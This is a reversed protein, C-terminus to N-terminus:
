MVERLIAFIMASIGGTIPMTVVWSIVINTFLSWDVVEKSRVRGVFVVSGVKCHTTSVPIGLNSALLVTLASGIEIAFGSSPTIPSLNEGITKIVRRGWVSLGVIIGVGGYILIWIPTQATSQVEGTRYILWLSIVPGIANSVDNGGHAFAGFAATLIQLYKFLQASHPDDQIQSRASDDPEPLVSDLVSRTRSRTSESRPKTDITKKEEHSITITATEKNKTDGNQNIEDNAESAHEFGENHTGKEDTEKEEDKGAENDFRVSPIEASESEALIKKKLWPNVGFAEIISIVLSAGICIGFIVYWAFDAMGFVEKSSYFISFLNIFITAFLLFPLAILGYKLPSSSKLIWRDIGLFIACSILGSLLPSIVWSAAIKGFTAWGISKSGIAVLAYGITAGVISHTGSVPLNFFTAVILWISTATLASFAGAMALPESGNFQNVDIIGKRVTDSVKSGILIAGALEFISAIICAQFLTLVKAGVSTGFSNAVDNAGIGFALVFAIIFGVVVLWLVDPNEEIM